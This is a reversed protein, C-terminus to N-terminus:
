DGEPLLGKKKLERRYVSVCIALAGYDPFMKQVEEEIEKKGKGEVLRAKVLAAATPFEPDTNKAKGTMEEEESLTPPEGKSPTSSSYPHGYQGNWV